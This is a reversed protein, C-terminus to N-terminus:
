NKSILKNDEIFCKHSGYSNIDVETSLPSEDIGINLLKSLLCEVIFEKFKNKDLVHYNDYYGKGIYQYLYFPINDLYIINVSRSRGDNCYDFMKDEQKIRKRFEEPLESWTNSNIDSCISNISELDIWDSWSTTNDESPTLTLINEISLKM